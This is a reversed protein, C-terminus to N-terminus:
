VFLQGEYTLCSPKVIDCCWSHTGFLEMHIGIHQKLRAYQEPQLFRSARDCDLSQFVFQSTTLSHSGAFKVPNRMTSATQRDSDPRRMEYRM